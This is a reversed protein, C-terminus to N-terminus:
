ELPESLYTLKCQFDNIVYFLVQLLHFPGLSVKLLDDGAVQSNDLKMALVEAALVGINNEMPLVVKSHWYVSPNHIETALPRLRECKKPFLELIQLLNHSLRDVFIIQTLM